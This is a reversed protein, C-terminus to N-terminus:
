TLAHRAEERFSFSLRATTEDTYEISVSVNVVGATAPSSSASVSAPFPDNAPSSVVPQFFTPIPQPDTPSAVNKCRVSPKCLHTAEVTDAAPDHRTTSTSWLECSAFGGAVPQVPYVGFTVVSYDVQTAQTGNGYGETEYGEPMDQSSYGEPDNSMEYVLTASGASVVPTILSM